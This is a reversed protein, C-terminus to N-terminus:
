QHSYPPKFASAHKAKIIAFVILMLVLYVVGICFLTIVLPYAYKLAVRVFDNVKDFANNWGAANSYCGISAATNFQSEVTTLGDKKGSLASMYHIFMIIILIALIIAIM